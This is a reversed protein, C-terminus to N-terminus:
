MSHTFTHAHHADKHRAAVMNEVGLLSKKKKKESNSEHM